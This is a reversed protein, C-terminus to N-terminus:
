EDALSEVAPTHIATTPRMLADFGDFRQMARKMSAERRRELAVCDSAALRRMIGSACSDPPQSALERIPLLALACQDLRRMSDFEAALM